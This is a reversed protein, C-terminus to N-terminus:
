ENIVFNYVNCISDKIKEYDYDEIANLHNKKAFQVNNDKNDILNVIKQAIEDPDEPEDILDGFYKEGILEKTANGPNSQLPIAGLLLAELLSNPM